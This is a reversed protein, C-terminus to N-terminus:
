EVSELLGSIFAVAAVAVTSFTSISTGSVRSSGNTSPGVLAGAEHNTSSPSGGGVCAWTSYQHWSQPTRETAVPLPTASPPHGALRAGVRGVSRARTSRPGTTRRLRAHCRLRSQYLLSQERRSRATG